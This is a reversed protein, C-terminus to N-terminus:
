TRPKMSQLSSCVRGSLSSVEDSRRRDRSCIPSWDCAALHGMPQALKTGHEPDYARSTSKARSNWSRRLFSGALGPSVDAVIETGRCHRRQWLETGHDPGSRRAIEGLLLRFDWPSSCQGPCIDKVLATGKATGDTRWLEWGHIGDWGRFLVADEFQVLEFVPPWGISDPPGDVRVDRVLRPPESPGASAGLGGAALLLVSLVIPGTRNM